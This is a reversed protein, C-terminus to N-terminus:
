RTSVLGSKLVPILSALMPSAIMVQRSKTSREKTRPPRKMTQPSSSWRGSPLSPETLGLRVDDKSAAQLHETRTVIMKSANMKVLRASVSTKVLRVSVIVLRVITSTALDDAGDLAGAELKVVLNIM